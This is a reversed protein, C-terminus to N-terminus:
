CGLNARLSPSVTKKSLYVNLLGQYLDKDKMEGIYKGRATLVVTQGGQKWELTMREGKKLKGGIGTLIMDGFAQKTSEAVGEINTLAEAMKEANVGMSFAMQIARPASKADILSDCLAKGSKDQLSKKTAKNSYFGISYVNLVAKKRTGVGLLQLNKGIHFKAVTPFSHGTAPDVVEGDVADSPGGGGAFWLAAVALALGVVAVAKSIRSVNDNAM